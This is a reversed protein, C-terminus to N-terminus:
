KADKYILFAVNIIESFAAMFVILILTSDVIILFNLVIVAVFLIIGTFLCSSIYNNCKEIKGIKNHLLLCLLLVIIYLIISIFSLVNLNNTVFEFRKFVENGIFLIAFLFVVTILPSLWYLNDFLKFKEKM